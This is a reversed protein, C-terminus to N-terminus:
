GPKFIKDMVEAGVTIVPRLEHRYVTETVNTSNHGMLRSIEEIAVGNDSLLSVFTHRLERPM